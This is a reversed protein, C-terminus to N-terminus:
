IKLNLCDEWLTDSAGEKKYKTCKKLPQVPQLDMVHLRLMTRALIGYDISCMMPLAHIDFVGLEEM